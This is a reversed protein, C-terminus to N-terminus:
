PFGPPQKKLVGARGPRCGPVPSRHSKRGSATNKPYLSRLSQIAQALKKMPKPAPASRLAKRSGAFRYVSRRTTRMPRAAPAQQRQCRHLQVM